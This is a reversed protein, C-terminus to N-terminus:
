IRDIHGQNFHGNQTKVMAEERDRGETALGVAHTDETENPKHGGEDSIHQVTDGHALEPIGRCAAGAKVEGVVEQDHLEDVHEQVHYDNGKGELGDRAQLKGPPLFQGQQTNERQTGQIDDGGWHAHYDWCESVLMCLTITVLAMRM